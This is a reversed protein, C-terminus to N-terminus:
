RHSRLMRLHRSIPAMVRGGLKFQFREAVDLYRLTVPGALGQGCDCRVDIERPLPDPLSRRRVWRLWSGRRRARCLERGLAHGVPRSVAASLSGRYSGARGTVSCPLLWSLRTGQPCRAGM